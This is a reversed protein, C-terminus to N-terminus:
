PPQNGLQKAKTQEQLWGSPFGKFHLVRTPVGPPAPIGLASNTEVGREICVRTLRAIIMVTNSLHQTSELAPRRKRLIYGAQHVVDISM